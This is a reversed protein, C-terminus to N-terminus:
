NYAIAYSCTYMYSVSTSNAKLLLCIKDGSNLNRSTPVHVRLPGANFDFCGCAMVYQNPEYLRENNVALLENTVGAPNYVIAWWIASADAAAGGYAMSLTLHKVNRVGNEASYDVLVQSANGGSNTTVTGARQEFAYKLKRGRNSKKVPAM